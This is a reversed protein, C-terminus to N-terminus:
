ESAEGDETSAVTVSDGESVANPDIVVQAEEKLGGTVVEQLGQKEMTIEKKVVVGDEVVFVSKRGDEDIIAGTPLTYGPLTLQVTTSFGPQIYDDATVVFPYATSESQGTAEAPLSAEAMEGGQGAASNSPSPLTQVEDITGEVSRDEADVQINVKTGEEIAYLEYETASTDVIVDDSTVRIYPVTPDTKGQNDIQVTGNNEAYQVTYAQDELDALTLELDEIQDDLSATLMETDAASTVTEDAVLAEGNEDLPQETMPQTQAVAAEEGNARDTYLSDLQRETETIQQGIEENYYAFLPDGVAVTDGENVYVLGFEGEEGTIYYAQDSGLAAKGSFSLPEQKSVTHVEVANADETDTNEGLADTVLYAIAAFIVIALAIGSFIWLGKKNKSNM